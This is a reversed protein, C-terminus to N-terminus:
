IKPLKPHKMAHWESKFDDSLTSKDCKKCSLKIPDAFMTVLPELKQILEPVYTGSVTWKRVARTIYSAVMWGVDIVGQAICPLQAEKGKEPLTGPYTNIEEPNRTNVSYVRLNEGGIRGDIFFPIRSRVALKLIRERTWM